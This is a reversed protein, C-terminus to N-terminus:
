LVDSRNLGIFRTPRRRMKKHKMVAASLRGDFVPHDRFIGWRARAPYEPSQKGAASTAALHEALVFRAAQSFGARQGRGFGNRDSENQRNHFDLGPEYGFVCKGLTSGDSVRATTEPDQSNIRRGVINLLQLRRRVLQPPAVRLRVVSYVFSFEWRVISAM